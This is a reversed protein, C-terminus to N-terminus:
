AASPGPAVHRRWQRAFAPLAEARRRDLLIRSAGVVVLAGYVYLLAERSKPVAFQVAWLGLLTAAEGATFRMNLLVVVGLLSQLITLLIETRHM